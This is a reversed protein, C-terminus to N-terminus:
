GIRPSSVRAQDGRSVAERSQPRDARRKRKDTLFDDDPTYDVTTVTITVGDRYHYPTAESREEGWVTGDLNSYPLEKHIADYRANVAREARTAHCVRRQPFWDRHPDSCEAM